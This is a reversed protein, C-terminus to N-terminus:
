ATPRDKYASPQNKYASPSVGFQKKFCKSFYLPDNFGVAFSIQKINLEASSLILEAAKKLRLERLYEVPACGTIGKVKNYFVTRSVNLSDTLDQISIDADELRELILANLKDLFQRDLSSSCLIPQAVGAARAYKERLKRRQEIQQFICARLVDLRFPKAVYADAGEEYGQIQQEPASLATLLVVPIHCTEFDKKLQRTLEYGNMRPMLVDCLILDPALERARELGSLGDNATHVEFWASFEGALLGRIDADDEVILLRQPNAPKERTEPSDTGASVAGPTDIDASVTGLIDTESVKDSLPSSDKALGSPLSNELGVPLSVTFVSGGGEREKYDIAGRLITVLERTLNLGIGVSDAVSSKAAYRSFLLVQKEPSIGIGNDSVSFRYESGDAVPGAEVAIHGGDPTYKFANSILNYAIKDLHGRDVAMAFPAGLGVTYDMHKTQALERFTECVEGLFATVDTEQLSVTARGEQIKSIEMIQDSLRKMRDLGKQMTSVSPQALSPISPTNRFKELAAQILSLPTRFEHLLNSFFRQRFASLEKELEAERRSKAAQYRSWFLWGLLGGLLFVWLAVAWWRGWWPAKIRISLGSEESQVGSPDCLEVEFRYTGPRLNKYTASEQAGPQSWDKDYGNLRYRYQPHRMGCYDFSSFHIELSNEFHRLRIRNAYALAQPLAVGNEPSYVSVGNVLLDTFVVDRNVLPSSLSDPNVVLMGYDTGFVLRGDPLLCVSKENCVNGSMQESFLYNRFVRREPEMKSIGLETGIWLNGWADRCLSQVNNNVLGQGTTFTEWSLKGATLSCYLLGFGITGVWMGDRHPLLCTVENACFNGNQISFHSLSEKGVALSDPHAVCLGDNTAMWLRGAADVDIDRVFRTGYSPMPVARFGWGGEPKEYALELGGGFSAVWMRGRSDCYFDYINNDRLTTNDNRDYLFSRGDVSLGGGRTGKWVRGASDSALAYVSSSLDTKGLLNLAQDYRYFGGVRTSVFLTDGELKIMRVTNSRNMIRPSEPYVQGTESVVPTLCSLGARESGLWVNGEDDVQLALLYNSPIAKQGSPLRDSAQYHWLKGGAAEQVFLGGSNSAIWTNDFRDYGFLYRSGSTERGNGNGDLNLDSEGSGDLGVRVIRQSQNFIWCNRDDAFVRANRHTLFRDERVTFTDLDFRYARNLALIIMDSGQRFAHRYSFSSLGLPVRQLSDDRCVLVEAAKTLVYVTERYSLLKLARTAADVCVLSDGQLRFLGKDTGVWIRGSADECVDKVNDTALEGSVQSFWRSELSRDSLKRVRCIGEVGWLWVDGNQMEQWGTNYLTPIEPRFAYNVFCDRELDYCVVNGPSCLIWLYHDSDEWLNTVTGSVASFRGEGRLNMTIFSHGDTRCLGNATGIWLFGKSDQLISRVTNSPLGDATSFHRVTFRVEAGLSAPLLLLWLVLWWARKSKM